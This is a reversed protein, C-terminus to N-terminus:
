WRRKSPDRNEKEFETQVEINEPECHSGVSSEVSGGDELRITAQYQEELNGNCPHVDMGMQQMRERETQSVCASLIVMCALAFLAKM